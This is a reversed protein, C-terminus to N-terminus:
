RGYYRAKANEILRAEDYSSWAHGNKRWMRALEQKIETYRSCAPEGPPLPVEVPSRPPQWKRRLVPAEVVVPRFEKAAAAAQVAKTQEHELDHRVARINPAHAPTASHQNLPSSSEM